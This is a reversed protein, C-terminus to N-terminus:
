PIQCVVCRVSGGHLYGLDRLRDGTWCAGSFCASLWYKQRANTKRSRYMSRLPDACVREGTFEPLNSALRRELARQVGAELLKALMAPSTYMLDIGFDRDDRWLAFNDARWGIRHLSLLMRHVPGRSRSWVLPGLEPSTASVARWIRIHDRFSFHSGKPDTLSQWLSNAWQLAPAVAQRWAPDGHLVLKATLSVGKHAPTVGSM